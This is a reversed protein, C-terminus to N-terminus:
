YTNERAIAIGSLALNTVARCCDLGELLEEGVVQTASDVALVLM